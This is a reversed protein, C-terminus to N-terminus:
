GRPGQAADAAGAQETATGPSTLWWVVALGWVVSNIAFLALRLDSDIADSTLFPSSALGIPFQLIANTAIVAFSMLQNGADGEFGQFNSMAALGRLAGAFFSLVFHAGAVTLALLIARKRRMATM